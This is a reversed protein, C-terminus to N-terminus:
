LITQIRVQAGLGEYGDTLCSRGVVFIRQGPLIKQWACCPLVRGDQREVNEGPPAEQRNYLRTHTVHLDLCDLTMTVAPTLEPDLKMTGDFLPTIRTLGTCNHRPRM